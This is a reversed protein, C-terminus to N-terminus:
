REQCEILLLSVQTMLHFAGKTICTSVFMTRDETARWKTVCISVFM